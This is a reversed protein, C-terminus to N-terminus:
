VRWKLKRPRFLELEEPLVPFAGGEMFKWSPSRKGNDFVVHYYDTSEGKEVVVTGAEGKGLGAFPMTLMVRDGVKFM